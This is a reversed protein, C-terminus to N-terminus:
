HFLSICPIKVEEELLAYSSGCLQCPPKMHVEKEQRHKMMSAQGEGWGLVCECFYVCVSVSHGFVFVSSSRNSKEKSEREEGEKKGNGLERTPPFFPM